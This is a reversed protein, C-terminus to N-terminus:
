CSRNPYDSTLTPNMTTQEGGLARVCFEFFIKQDRDDVVVVVGEDRGKEDSSGTGKTTEGLGAMDLLLLLSVLL